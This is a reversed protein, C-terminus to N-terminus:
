KHLIVSVNKHNPSSLGCMQEPPWIKIASNQSNTHCFISLYGILRFQYKKKALINTIRVESESSVVM